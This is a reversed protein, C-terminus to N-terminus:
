GGHYYLTSVAFVGSAAVVRVLYRGSSLGAPLEARVEVVEGAYVEVQGGTVHLRWALGEGELYVSDVKVDLTGHNRLVIVLTNGEVRMGEIILATKLYGISSSREAATDMSSAIAHYFAVGAVLSIVLLAPAALSFSNCRGSSASPAKRVVAM